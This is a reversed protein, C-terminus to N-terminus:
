SVLIMYWDNISFIFDLKSGVDIKYILLLIFVVETSKYIWEKFRSSVKSKIDKSPFGLM